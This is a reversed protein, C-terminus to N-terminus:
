RACNAIQTRLYDEYNTNHTHTTYRKQATTRAANGIRIRLNASEILHSLYTIWDTTDTAVFGDKGHTIAERFTQTASAVTPVGVIGAEFFKLESKAECFPNGVELPAINIDVSAVNAFHVARPVYANQVFRDAFRKLREELDLPGYIAVRLQPYRTFLTELVPTLTAFDKNHSIVGSFYGITVIASSQMNERKRAYLTNALAVDDDSLKNPVIFVDKGEERLKEALFTTTTTAVRVYDDRVMEGGVGDKYQLKEFTQMQNYFDMHKLFRADYVLDDTEFIITKGAVKAADYLTHARGIYLVRHFIFVAFRNTYQPLLPNDQVTVSVRFGSHRLEEAVHHARYRASDGIGSTIILIDGPAVYMTRVLAFFGRLAKVLGRWLGDRKIANLVKGLKILWLKM